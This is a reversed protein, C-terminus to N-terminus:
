LSRGILETHKPHLRTGIKWNPVRRENTLPIGATVPAVATVLLTSTATKVICGSESRGVVEGPTGIYNPANPIKSAKLIAWETSDQWTRACPGPYAIGRIFNFIVNSCQRWNLIEDGPRRMGCYFGTPHITSQPTRVVTGDAVKNLAKILSVACQDYAKELLSAYDDSDLIGVFDQVIIDGTDIGDDIYHVTVGFQSEGNILAWNLINRGRYFPLAGAHCNIFGLPASIRLNQRIIQNFSMSVLIDAKLQSIKSVFDSSNVNQEPFFPVGLDAAYRKLIPDQSEWRPVVYAIEFRNNSLISKLALHAWPGDAFYGLKM